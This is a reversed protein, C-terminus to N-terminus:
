PQSVVIYSRSDPVPADWRRVGSRVGAIGTVIRHRGGIVQDKVYYTTLGNAEEHRKIFLMRNDRTRVVPLVQNDGPLHWYRLKPVTIAPLMEISM